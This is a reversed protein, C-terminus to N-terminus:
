FAGSSAFSVVRTHVPQVVHVHHVPHLGLASLPLYIALLGIVTLAGLSQAARVRLEPRTGDRALLPWCLLGIAYSVAHGSSTM